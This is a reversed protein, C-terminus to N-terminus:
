PSARTPRARAVTSSIGPVEEFPVGADLLEEAEEGGRRLHLPRRGQAPRRNQRRQSKRHHAQQHRGAPACPKRAVKGSTFANRTPGPMASCPTTPSTTMSCSWMPRKRSDGQGQHDASWPDGPGAGILYVKM